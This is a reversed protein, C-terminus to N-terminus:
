RVPERHPAPKVSPPAKAVPAPPTEPPVWPDGEPYPTRPGIGQEEITEVPGPSPQSPTVPGVGPVAGTQDNEQATMMAEPAPNGVHARKDAEHKEAAAKEHKDKDKEHDKDTTM